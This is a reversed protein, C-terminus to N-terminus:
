RCQGGRRAKGGDAGSGGVEACASGGGSPSGSRVGGRPTAPDLRHPVRWVEEHLEHGTAELVGSKVRRILAEMERSGGERDALPHPTTAYVLFNAHVDSVSAGGCTVGKLGARDILAGASLAGPGPNRFVCGVSREALPQTQRRRRLCERAREAAGADRRVRFTAATIVTGELNEAGLLLDDDGVVDGHGDGGEGSRTSSQTVSASAGSNHNGVAPNGERPSQFPSTRYSFQMLEAAVVRKVRGDASLVEVSELAAATDQGDAGANM